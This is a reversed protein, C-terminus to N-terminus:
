PKDHTEKIKFFTRKGKATEEKHKFLALEKQADQPRNLQRFVQYLLYHPEPDDPSLEICRQLQPLAADFKGQRYLAKGLGMYGDVLGPQDAVAAAFERMATTPDNQELLVMGLKYHAMFHRPSLEIARRFESAAKDLRSRKWYATGLVYHLSPLDPRLEVAKEYEKIAAESASQLDYYEGRVQHMRYSDEGLEALRSLIASSARSYGKLLWYLEDPNAPAGAAVRDFAKNAEDDRDLALYSLGLYFNADSDLPSAELVKRLPELAESPHGELFRDMGLLRHAELNKPQLRVVEELLSTSKQFSGTQHYLRALRILVQPDRRRAAAEAASIQKALDPPPSAEDSGALRQSSPAAALQGTRAECIRRLSHAISSNLNQRLFDDLIKQAQACDKAEIKQAALKLPESSEAPTASSPSAHLALAGCSILGVIGKWSRRAADM